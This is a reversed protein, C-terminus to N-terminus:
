RGNHIVTLRGGCGHRYTAPYKVVDCSRQRVSYGGCQECVIVYKYPLERPNVGNYKDACPTCRAITYGYAANLKNVWRKWGAGHNMADPCTHCLEHLITDKIALLSGYEYLATSINIRYRNNAYTVICEGHQRMERTEITISDAIPINLARCEDKCENYIASLKM